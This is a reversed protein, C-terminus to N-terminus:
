KTSEVRVWTKVFDKKVIKREWFIQVWLWLRVPYMMFSYFLEKLNRAYKIPFWFYELERWFSRSKTEPKVIGYEWLQMYGGTSRKKQKFYDKLNTPYKVFVLAEPEYEIRGGENFIM